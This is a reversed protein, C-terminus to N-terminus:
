CIHPDSMWKKMVTEDLCAHGTDAANNSWETAFNHAPKGGCGTMGVSLFVAVMSVLMKKKM